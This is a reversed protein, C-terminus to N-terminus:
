RKGTESLLSEVRAVFRLRETSWKYPQLAKQGREIIRAVERPNKFVYAIKSALDDAAGLEFFILDEMDFYDLLGQTRPAIVPKGLSLFEFVRTPMNLETFKSRRNPIIGVDCERIAEAIHELKKLGLYQVADSLGVQRASNLVRKLFQTSRGYIRLEARPISAKIKGLAIVALDLGHREVLSGHYMIVFPKLPDRDNSVQRTAEAPPFLAEDPSNMVVGIKEPPCGRALFVEKFATNPTLVADAFRISWKELRKLTRVARSDERLAFISMMLEPMPDHLDLMVKAGLLKPVLASVVLVDPMSHIHVFNYRRKCARGALILGSLLTFLAYQKVYSLKGGRRRRLLIRTIQVGNFTEQQPEEATEKLCIVEVYAGEVTLAEAARRPRPDGPYSSHMVAVARKGALTSTASELGAL